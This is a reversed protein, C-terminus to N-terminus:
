IEEFQQKIIQVEKVLNADAKLKDELGKRFDEGKKSLQENLEDIKKKSEEKQQALKLNADALKVNIEEKEEHVKGLDKIKASVDNQAEIMAEKYEKIEDKLQSVREEAEKLLNDYEGKLGEAGHTSAMIEVDKRKMEEAHQEVLNEMEQEFEADKEELTKAHEKRLDSLKKQM